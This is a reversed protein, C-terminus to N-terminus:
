VGNRAPASSSEGTSTPPYGTLPFDGGHHTGRLFTERDNILFRTDSSKIQRIGVTVERSDTFGDGSLQIRVRNLKPSFEDWRPADNSFQLELEAQGHQQIPAVSSDASLTPLTPEPIKSDSDWQVRAAVQSFEFNDKAADWVRVTGIGAKQTRNGVRIRLRASQRDTDPFVQVGEIWVLPTSYLEMKGVIGNWTSGL